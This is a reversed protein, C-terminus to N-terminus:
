GPRRGAPTPRGWGSQPITLGSPQQVTTYAQQRALQMVVPMALLFGLAWGLTLLVFLDGYAQTAVFFSAANAVLFAALGFAFNAHLDSHRSLLLLTANLHRFLAFLLWGAILLGPIGLELALKGGGGEAAYGFQGKGGGVHQSGQTGTGLGAGFPGFETIAWEASGIGLGTLRKPIDRWVSDGRKMLVSYKDSRQTTPASDFARENGDPELTGVLAFFSVAGVMISLMAWKAAGRLFWARLFFFVSVFVVINVLLKRRGTMLGIAVLFAVIVLVVFTKPVSLRKGRLLLFLFAATTAVHWAAIEAARYFGAPLRYASRVGYIFQGVGVEGLVTWTEGSYEFWVGSLWPLSMAVYFWLLRQVQNLGGKVALQYALLVAPLPALYSLLGIAPLAINGWRAYSHAAQFALLIVFLVSPLRFAPWGYIRHPGFRVNSLGAGIWATGFVVGVFVLFYIPQDPTLKRMPDQLLAMLVCMFFGTQWRLVSDMVCFFLAAFALEPM